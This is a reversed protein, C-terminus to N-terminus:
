STRRTPKAQSMWSTLCAFAIRNQYDWAAVYRVGARILACSANDGRYNQVIAVTRGYHDAKIPTVKVGAAVFRALVARQMYPDGPACDRGARCHGPMEAADIGLLRVRSGQCSLTDGDIAICEVAVPRAPGVFLETHDKKFAFTGLIAGAIVAAWKGIAM